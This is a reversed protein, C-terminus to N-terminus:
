VHARGIELLAQQIDGVARFFNRTSDVAVPGHYPYDLAVMVVRGPHGVLAVADRGTRHGGLLVVVPLPEDQPVPRLVRVDVRLGTDAVLHVAQSSFGDPETAVAEPEATVATGRREVFVEHRPRAHDALWWAGAALVVVVLVAFVRAMRKM